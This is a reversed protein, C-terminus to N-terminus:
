LITGKIYIIFNRKNDKYLVEEVDSGYKKTPSAFPHENDVQKKM